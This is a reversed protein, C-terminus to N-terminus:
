KVAAKLASAAKFAIRKSAEIQLEEGTKPNRGTRAATEKVTFTGFGPISLVGDEVITETLHQIFTRVAAEADKNTVSTTQAAKYKETLSKINSIAM